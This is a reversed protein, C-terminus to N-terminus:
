PLDETEDLVLTWTRKLPLEARIGEPLKDYNALLNDVLEERGWLRVRFYLENLRRRVASTYGGWSVILGHDAQTDQTSGILGQLTPQDVVNSGSKVQVVLRPAELGLPGSGAVIDVGNDAGPPSVRTRYGQARLIAAVLTTFDHGVFVSAIRKEIQDRAIRNLDILQDSAEEADPQGTQQNKYIREPKAGDGPDKGTALVAKIRDLANNRSIECVTMFAGFSYLLDQRFTDRPLDIKLWEVPRQAEGSPGARYPGSIRGIAITSTTKMPSIVLDGVEAVNAFQNVQAAFNKHMNPKDDPFLRAMEEILMERDTLHSIDHAIGFGITLVNSDLALTEHEGHKGLRVLWVRKADAVSNM